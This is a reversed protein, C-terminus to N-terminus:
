GNRCSQVRAEDWLSIIAPSGVIGKKGASLIELGRQCCQRYVQEIDELNTLGTFMSILGIIAPNELRIDAESLQSAAQLGRATTAPASRKPKSTRTQRRLRQRLTRRLRQCGPRCCYSQRGQNRSDPEFAKGCARCKHTNAM